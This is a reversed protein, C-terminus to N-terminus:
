EEELLPDELKDDEYPSVAQIEKHNERWRKQRERNKCIHCQGCKCIPHPGSPAKEYKPTPM